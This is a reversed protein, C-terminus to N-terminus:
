PVHLCTSEVGFHSIYVDWVPAWNVDINGQCRDDYSSGDIYGHAQSCCQVVPSTVTVLMHEYGEAEATCAQGNPNTDPHYPMPFTSTTVTMPVVKVSAEGTKTYLCAVLLTDGSSEQVYGKVEVIDGVVLNDAHDEHFVEIASFLECASNDECDQIYFYGATYSNKTAGVASVTGTVTVFQGDYTSPFCNGNITSQTYSSQIEIVSKMPYAGTYSVCQPDEAANQASVLPLSAVALCLARHIGM